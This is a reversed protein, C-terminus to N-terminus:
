PLPPREVLGDTSQNLVTGDQMVDHAWGANEESLAESLSLEYTCKAKELGVSVLIGGVDDTDDWGEM